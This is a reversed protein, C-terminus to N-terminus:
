ACLFLILSERAIEQDQDQLRTLNHNQDFTVDGGNGDGGDGDRTEDGNEEADLGLLDSFTDFGRLEDTPSDPRGAALLSLDTSVMTEHDFSVFCQNTLIITAISVVNNELSCSLLPM